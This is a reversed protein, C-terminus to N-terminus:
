TKRLLLLRKIKMPPQWLYAAASFVAMLVAPIGIALGPVDPYVLREVWAALFSGPYALTPDYRLRLRYEWITLPCYRGLVTLLGVFLIGGLHLTRFLWRDMFRSCFSVPIRRVAPWVISYVTLGFGGLMFLIWGFHLIVLLDALIKYKM